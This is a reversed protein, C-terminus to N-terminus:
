ISYRLVPQIQRARLSHDVLDALTATDLLRITAEHADKLILRVGCTTEDVCDACRRYATRSLCPVLALPGDVIRIVNGVSVNEPDRALAYGGGRGKKSRVLGHQRLEVLIAELFKRPIRECEAITAVLVPESGAQALRSLAKLAYKAKM